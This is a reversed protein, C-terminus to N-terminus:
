KSISTYLQDLLLLPLPATDCSWKVMKIDQTNIHNQQIINQMKLHLIQEHSKLSGFFPPFNLTEAHPLARSRYKTPQDVGLLNKLNDGLHVHPLIRQITTETRTSRSTQPQSELVHRVRRGSM